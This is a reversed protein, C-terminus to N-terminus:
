TLVMLKEFAIVTIVNKIHPLIITVGESLFLNVLVFADIDLILLLGNKGMKGKELNFIKERLNGIAVRSSNSTGHSFLLTGKFDKNWKDRRKM